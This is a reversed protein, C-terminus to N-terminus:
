SVLKLANKSLTLIIERCAVSYEPRVREDGGDVAFGPFELANVIFGVADTPTWRSV